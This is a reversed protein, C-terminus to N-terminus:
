AALEVYEALASAVGVSSGLIVLLRVIAILLWAIAIDTSAVRWRGAILSGTVINAM